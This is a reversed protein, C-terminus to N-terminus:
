EESNVAGLATLLEALLAPTSAAQLCLRHRVDLPYTLPRGAQDSVAGGVEELVLAAAAYDVVKEGWVPNTYRNRYQVASVGGTATPTRQPSAYIRCNAERRM